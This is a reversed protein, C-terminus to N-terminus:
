VRFVVDIRVSAYAVLQNFASIGNASGPTFLLTNTGGDRIWTIPLPAYGGIQITSFKSSLISFNGTTSAGIKVTKGSNGGYTYNPDGIFFNLPVGIIQNPTLDGYTLAGYFGASIDVIFNHVSKATKGYFNNLSIAGSPVEALTRCNADNLSMAGSDDLESRIDSISIAGSSQLTM